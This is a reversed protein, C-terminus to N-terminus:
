GDVSLDRKKSNTGNRELGARFRCVMRSQQGKLIGNEAEPCLM